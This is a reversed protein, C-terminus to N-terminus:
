DSAATAQGGSTQRFEAALREGEDRDMVRLVTGVGIIVWDGASVEPHVTTGVHVETGDVMRAAADQGTVSTVQALTPSRM